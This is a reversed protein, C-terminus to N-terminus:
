KRTRRKSYRKNKRRSHRKNKNKRKSHRKNKKKNKRTKGGKKFIDFPSSSTIEKLKSTASKAAEKTATYPKTLVSAAKQLNSRNEIKFNYNQDIKTVILALISIYSKLVLDVATIEDNNDQEEKMQPLRMQKALNTQEVRIRTAERQDAMLSLVENSVLINRVQQEVTIHKVRLLESKIELNSKQTQHTDIDRQTKERLSNLIILNADAEEITKPNKIDSVKTTTEGIKAAERSINMDSFYNVFINSGWVAALGISAQTGLLEESSVPLTSTDLQRCAKKIKSETYNELAGITTATCLGANAAKELDDILKNYENLKFIKWKETPLIITLEEQNDDDFYNVAQANLNIRNYIERILAMNDLDKIPTNNIEENNTFSGQTKYLLLKAANAAESFSTVAKAKRALAGSVIAGCTNSLVGKIIESTADGM